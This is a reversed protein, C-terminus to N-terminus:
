QCLYIEVICASHMTAKGSCCKNRSDAVYQALRAIGIKNQLFINSLSVNFNREFCCAPCQCHQSLCKTSEM